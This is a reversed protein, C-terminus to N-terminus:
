KPITGSGREGNEIRRRGGEEKVRTRIDMECLVWGVNKCICWAHIYPYMPKHSGISFIVSLVSFLLYHINQIWWSYVGM